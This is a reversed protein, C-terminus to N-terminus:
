QREGYLLGVLYASTILVCFIVLAFLTRLWFERLV